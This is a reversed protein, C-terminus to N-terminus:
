GLLSRGYVATAVGSAVLVLANGPQDIATALGAFVLWLGIMLIFTGAAQKITGQHCLALGFASILAVVTLVTANDEM